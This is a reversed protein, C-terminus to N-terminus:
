LAPSNRLLPQRFIYVLTGVNFFSTGDYITNKMNGWHKRRYQTVETMDRELKEEQETEQKTHNGAEGYYAAGRDPQRCEGQTYLRCRGM